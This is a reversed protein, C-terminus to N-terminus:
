SREGLLARMKDIGYRYRGTVTNIPEDLRGAIEDFTLGEFAKLHVVERQEPPLVALAQELAIRDDPRDAIGTLSELVHEDATGDPKRRRRRLVTYAENRVARRLYHAANDLTPPRRVLALFVQQVVDAAAATDMLLVLAYRYLEAGHCDYAHGIWDAPRDDHADDRRQM